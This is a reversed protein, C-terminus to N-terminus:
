VDKGLSKRFIVFPHFGYKTRLYNLYQINSFDSSNWTLYEDTWMVELFTATHLTQLKMNLEQLSLLYLRIGLPLKSPYVMVPKTYRNYTKFLTEQLNNEIGITENEQSRAKLASILVLLVIKLTTFLHSVM